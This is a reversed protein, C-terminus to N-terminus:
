RKEKKGADRSAQLMKPVIAIVAMVIKILMSLVSGAAKGAAKVNEDSNNRTM